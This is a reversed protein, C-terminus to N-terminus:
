TECSEYHKIESSEETQTEVSVGPKKFNHGFASVNMLFSQHKTM